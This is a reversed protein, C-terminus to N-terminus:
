VIINILHLNLTAKDNKLNRNEIKLKNRRLDMEIERNCKENFFERLFDFVGFCFVNDRFVIQNVIKRDYVVESLIRRFSSPNITCNRITITKNKNSFEYNVKSPSLNRVNTNKFHSKRKIANNGRVEPQNIKLTDISVKRSTINSNPNLLRKSLDRKTKQDFFFSSRRLNKLELGFDLKNGEIANVRELLITKGKPTKLFSKRRKPRKKHTEKIPSDKVSREESLMLSKLKSEFIEGQIKLHHSPSQIQPHFLEDEFDPQLQSIIAAKNINFSPVYTLVRKICKAIEKNKFIMNNLITIRDKLTNLIEISNGTKLKSKKEIIQLDNELRSCSHRFSNFDSLRKKTRQIDKNLNDDFESLCKEMEKKIVDIVEKNGYKM